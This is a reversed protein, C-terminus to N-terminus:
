ATGFHKMGIQPLSCRRYGPPALWAPQTSVAEEGWFFNASAKDRISWTYMYNGFVRADESGIPGGGLVRVGM